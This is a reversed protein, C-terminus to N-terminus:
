FLYSIEADALWSAVLQDGDVNRSLPLYLMGTVQISSGLSQQLGPTLYLTEYGSNLNGTVSDGGGSDHGRLTANAQLLPTLGLTGALGDFHVGAALDLNNGPQTDTGPM